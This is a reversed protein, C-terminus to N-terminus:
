TAGEWQTESLTEPSNGVKTKKGTAISEDRRTVISSASSARFQIAASADGSSSKCMVILPVKISRLSWTREKLRVLTERMQVDEGLCHSPKKRSNPLRKSSIAETSADSHLTTISGLLSAVDENAANGSWIDEMKKRLTQEATSAAQVARERGDCDKDGIGWRDKALIGAGIRSVGAKL